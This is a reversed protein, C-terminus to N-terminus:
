SGDSFPNQTSIAYIWAPASLAKASAPAPSADYRAPFSLTFHGPQKDNASRYSHRTIRNSRGQAHGSCFDSSVGRLPLLAGVRM